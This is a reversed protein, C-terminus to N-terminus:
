SKEQRRLDKMNAEREKMKIKLIASSTISSDISDGCWVYGEYIYFLPRIQGKIADINIFYKKAKVTLLDFMVLLPIQKSLEIMATFAKEEPFHHNIVEIAVWPHRISMALDRSQGFLDHRITLDKNCIRHVETDWHYKHLTALPAFGTIKNNEFIPHGIQFTKEGNLLNFLYTVHNNHSKDTEFFSVERANSQNLSYFHSTKNKCYRPRLLTYGNKDFLIQERAFDYVKIDNLNAASIQKKDSGDYYFARDYKYIKNM